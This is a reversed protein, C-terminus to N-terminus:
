AYLRRFSRSTLWQGIGAAAGVAITLNILFHAATFFMGFAVGRSGFVFRYMRRDILFYMALLLIPVAALIPAGTLLPLPVTAVTLAAYASARSEASGIVGAAYQRQLFFPVQMRTRTFVKRLAVRLNPDDDHRGRVANTLRIEYRDTLRQAVSAAETQLLHESFPGVEDWVKRTMASLGPVLIDTRGEAARWYYHHFLNRYEKALSGRTLPEPEYNGCVAGIGPDSQLVRVAAAVAGPDLAIDSDLFFLIEGKAHAVGLNRAVAVGGNGPTRLPTVGLSEAVEVSNDTSCDDVLIIEVAPHTQAQIARLCHELVQGYNYNPVIVSVLPTGAM